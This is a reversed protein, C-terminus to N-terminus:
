LGARRLEDKLDMKQYFVLNYPHDVLRVGDTGEVLTAVHDKEAIKLTPGGALGIAFEATECGEEDWGFFDVPISEGGLSHYADTLEAAELLCRLQTLDLKM